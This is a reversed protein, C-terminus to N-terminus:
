QADDSVEYVIRNERMSISVNINLVGEDRRGHYISNEALPQLILKITHCSLADRDAEYSVNVDEGFRIKQIKM